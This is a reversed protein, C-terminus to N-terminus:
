ALGMDSFQPRLFFNTIFDHGPVAPHAWDTYMASFQSSPMYFYAHIGERYIDVYHVNETKLMAELAQLYAPFATFLPTSRFFFPSFVVPEIGNLKLELVINRMNNVYNTAGKNYFVDNTGFMVFCVKPNHALVDTTLRAYGGEATDNSVGKNIITTFGRANGIKYSFIDTATVGTRVGLTVSDGLFVVKSM